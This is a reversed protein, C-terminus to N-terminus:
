SKPPFQGYEIHIFARMPVTNGNVKGPKYHSKLLSQVAPKELEPRACHVAQPDSANGKVNITLVMDCAGNGINGAKGTAYGENSFKTMVPSTAQKTLPYVGDADPEDECTGHSGM